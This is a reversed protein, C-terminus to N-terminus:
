YKGPLTHLALSFMGNVTDGWYKVRAYILASKKELVVLLIPIRANLIRTMAEKIANDNADDDGHGPLVARFGERPAPETYGIGCAEVAEKFQEHNLDALNARGLCLYSWQPMSACTHFKKQIMNWEANQPTVSNGRYQVQPAPLHRGHITLM